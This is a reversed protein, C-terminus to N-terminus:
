SCKFQKNNSSPMMSETLLAKSEFQSPEFGVVSLLWLKKDIKILSQGMLTRKLFPM